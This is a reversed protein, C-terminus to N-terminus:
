WRFWGALVCRPEGQRVTVVAPRGFGPEYRTTRGGAAVEVIAPASFQCVSYLRSSFFWGDHFAQCSVNGLQHTFRVGEYEFSRPPNRYRAITTSSRRPCPPGEFTWDAVLARRNRITEITLWIPILAVAALVACIGVAQILGARAVPGSRSGRRDLSVTRRGVVM